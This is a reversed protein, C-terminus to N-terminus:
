MSCGKAQSRGGINGSRRHFDTYKGAPLHEITVTFNSGNIEERFAAADTAGEVTVSGRDKRHAFDGSISVQQGCSACIEDAAFATPAGLWSSALWALTGVALSLPLSGFSPLTSRPRGARLQAERRVLPTEM